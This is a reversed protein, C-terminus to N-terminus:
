MVKLDDIELLLRGGTEVITLELTLDSRGEELTWLPVRASWAPEPRGEIAICDVYKYFNQPPRVVTRGYDSVVNGLDSATLRSRDCLRVANDYECDALANVFLLIAEKISDFTM